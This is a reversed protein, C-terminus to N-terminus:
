RTFAVARISRRPVVVGTIGTPCAGEPLTVEVTYVFRPATKDRTDLSKRLIRWHLPAHPALGLIQALRGPLAAESEDISLRINAIRIPM